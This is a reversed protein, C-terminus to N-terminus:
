SAEFGGSGTASLSLQVSAPGYATGTTGEIQLTDLSGGPFAYLHAGQTMAKGCSEAYSEYMRLYFTLEGEGPYVPALDSVDVGDNESFECGYAEHLGGFMECGSTTTQTHAEEAEFAIETTVNACRFGGWDGSVELSGQYTEMEGGGAIPNGNHRFEAASAAAPIAFAMAALATLALLVMKKVTM